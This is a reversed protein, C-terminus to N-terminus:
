STNYAKQQRNRHLLASFDAGGEEVGLDLLSVNVLLLSKGLYENSM